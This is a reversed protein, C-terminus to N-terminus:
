EPHAVVVLNEAYGGATADYEGICTLMVLRPSGTQGFVEEDDVLEARPVSRIEAVRYGQRHAGAGLEIRDGLRAGWLARFYGPAGAISDVHGALVVSGYPDGVYASGDWWGVEGVREPVVLSGNVTSAVAIPAAGRGPLEIREPIWRASDDAARGPRAAPPEPAAEQPAASCGALLGAALLAVLAARASLLSGM